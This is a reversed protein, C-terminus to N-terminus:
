EKKVTRVVVPKPEPVSATHLYCIIDWVDATVGGWEPRSQMLQVPKLAQFMRVISFITKYRVGEVIIQSESNIM